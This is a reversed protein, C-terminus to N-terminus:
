SVPRIRGAHWAITERLGAELGRAPRWGLRERARACDLVQRPIENEASALIKPELDEREALRLITRVLELVALPRESGLQFAEGSIGSEGAREALALYGDVADRVFLWDRVLKGDSRIVPSEGRLVSRITGPVLRNWNLDGPGFLNGCRAIAVPLAYTHFYSATILDAAAKSADYPFKARLPTAETYPLVEHEGYAKDSSAVVVRGVLGGARRCAELVNWTGRVNSEFTSVPSRAATGVITQAGLHFVSEIEHENVARELVALDELEGRVQSVREIWGEEILRARPEWDRVLCAVHAERSLLAEVLHGGLLGTAGTVFVRRDRWFANM